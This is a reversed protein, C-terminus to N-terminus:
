QSSLYLACAEFHLVSCRAKIPGSRHSAVALMRGDKSWEMLQQIDTPYAGGSETQHLGYASANYPHSGDCHMAAPGHLETESWSKICRNARADILQLGGQTSGIAYICAHPLPHWAVKEGLPIRAPAREPQVSLASASSAPAAPLRWQQLGERSSGAGIYADWGVVIRGCPSLGPLIQSCYETAPGNKGFNLPRRNPGLLEVPCFAQPAASTSTCGALVLPSPWMLPLLCAAGLKSWKCVFGPRGRIMHRHLVLGSAADLISAQGVNGVREYDKLRRRKLHLEDTVRIWRGNESARTRTEIRYEDAEVLPSTAVHPARESTLQSWLLEGNSSIVHLGNNTAYMLNSSNPIWSPPARWCPLTSGPMLVMSLKCEGELASHISLAQVESTRELLDIHSSKVLWAIALLKGDPSLMLSQMTVLWDIGQVGSTHKSRLSILTQVASKPCSLQYLPQCSSSVDYVIIHDEFHKGAVPSAVWALVDKACGDEDYAAFLHSHGEHHAQQLTVASVNGTRADALRIERPGSAQSCAPYFLLCPQDALWHAYVECPLRSEIRVSLCMEQFHVQQGTRADLLIYVIADDQCAHLLLWHSASEYRTCLSWAMQDFFKLPGHAHRSQCSSNRADNSLSLPQIRPSFGHECRLRAM